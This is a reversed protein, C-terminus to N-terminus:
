INNSYFSSPLQRDELGTVDESLSYRLHSAISHHFDTLRKGLLRCLQELDQFNEKPTNEKFFGIRHLLLFNDRFLTLLDYLLFFTKSSDPQVLDFYSKCCATLTTFTTDDFLYVNNNCIQSLLNAVLNEAQSEKYLRAFKEYWPAIPELFNHPLETMEKCAKLFYSVAKFYFEKAKERNGKSCIEGAEKFAYSLKIKESTSFFIKEREIERLIEYYFFKEENRNNQEVLFFCIELLISQGRQTLQSLIAKLFLVGASMQKLSFDKLSPNTQYIFFNYQCFAIGLWELEISLRDNEPIKLITDVCQVLVNIREGIDLNKNFQDVLAAISSRLKDVSVIEKNQQM